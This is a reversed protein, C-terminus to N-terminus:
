VHKWTKRRVINSILVDTVGYEKALRRYSLSTARDRIELVQATTLKHLKHAEGQM